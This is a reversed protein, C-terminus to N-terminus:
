IQKTKWRGKRFVIFALFAIFLSALPIAAFVGAPGIKLSIALWYAMPIQLLWYCVFNIVTPTMTDGAGNFAQVLTMGVAYFGYGYAVFQLCQTGYEIVSKSDTFLSIINASFFYFALAVTLMFALNYKTITWVSVEARTAQKAGLNQGVLTAAANSLGWAPLMTFMVIRIAITYGAVADSGFHSVIRVLFVWSATAILFQLVGGLSVKLIGVIVALDLQLKHIYLQIKGSISFLHYLQYMVGISRGITTAVAAGTLGMEPFPGWGFILIPDLVINIGSALWLSKMAIKADGAGRFIANFLFLFLISVCGGLMVATYGHGMIAVDETAGMLHLIDVAYISGPIGVALAVGLGIWITQVAVQNAGAINKEGVRRAVTATVAMGLGIAVAYLLTIVAETLGVVSIAAPGLASVFFIDTIAFVSEMMMELVMPVSLLFAAKGISGQTLDQQNDSSLAQKFLSYLSQKPQESQTNSHNRM